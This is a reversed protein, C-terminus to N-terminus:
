NSFKTEIEKKQVKPTPAREDDRPKMQAASGPINAVAEKLEQNEEEM